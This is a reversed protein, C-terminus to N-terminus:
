PKIGPERRRVTWFRPRTIKRMVMRRRFRMIAGAPDVNSPCVQSCRYVSHCRWLGDERDVQAEVKEVSRGRPECELRWAAALGAPGYYAADTVAVPCASICLGCEICDEYRNFEQGGSALGPLHDEVRRTLPLDFAHLMGYLPNPDVVLDRMVPFNRLPEVKVPQHTAALEALPTICALREEGNVRMGCSGCSAHHCAHRFMLTADQQRAQELADLLYATDPLNIRYDRWGESRLVRLTLDVNM